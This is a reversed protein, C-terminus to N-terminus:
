IIFLNSIPVGQSRIEYRRRIGVGLAHRFYDYTKNGGDVMVMSIPHPRPIGGAVVQVEDLLPRILLLEESEIIPTITTSSPSTASELGHDPDADSSSLDPDDGREYSVVIVLQLSSRSPHFSPINRLKRSFSCGGRKAVIVQHTAPVSAPLRHTCIEDALYIGSWSLRPPPQKGAASSAPSSFMADEIDPLPAAGRGTASVAPISIRAVPRPHTSPKQPPPLPEDRLISSVHNMFLTFAMKMSSAQQCPMNLDDTSQQKHNVGGANESSAPPSPTDGRYLKSTGIDIVIDLMTPDQMRTFNPDSPNLISTTERSIYVREDKGLAVNNIVQIRFGETVASVKEVYLPIDQIM